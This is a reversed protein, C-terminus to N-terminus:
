NLFIVQGLDHQKFIASKLRCGFIVGFNTTKGCSGTAVGDARSKMKLFILISVLNEWNVFMDCTSALLFLGPPLFIYTQTLPAAM